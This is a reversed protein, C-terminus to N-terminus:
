KNPFNITNNLINLEHFQCQLDLQQWGFVLGIQQKLRHAFGILCAIINRIYCPPMLYKILEFKVVCTVINDLLIACERCLHNDPADRLDRTTIFQILFYLPRKPWKAANSIITAYKVIFRVVDYRDPTNATSLLHWKNTMISIVQWEDFSLSIQQISITLEKQQLTDVHWIIVRIINLLKNAHIKAQNLNRRKRVASFVIRFCKSFISFFSLLNSTRKLAFARLVCSANQFPKTAFLLSSPGNDIVSNTLGYNCNRLGFAITDCNLVQGANTHRGFVFSLCESRTHSFPAERLQALEKLILSPNRAYWQYRNLWIECGLRTVNTVINAVTVAFRKLTFVASNIHIGINVCRKIDSRQPSGYILRFVRSHIANQM